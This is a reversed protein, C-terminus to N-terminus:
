PQAYKDKLDVLAASDGGLNLFEAYVSFEDAKQGTSVNIPIDDENYDDGFVQKQLAKFIQSRNSAEATADYPESSRSYKKMADLLGPDKRLMEMMKVQDPIEGEQRIGEAMAAEGFDVFANRPVFGETPKMMALFGSMMQQAFEPDSGIKDTYSKPFSALYDMFNPKDRGAEQARAM